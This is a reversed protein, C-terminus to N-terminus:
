TIFGNVIFFYYEEIQKRALDMSQVSSNASFLNMIKFFFLGAPLLDTYTM